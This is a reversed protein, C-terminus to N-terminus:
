LSGVLMADYQHFEIKVLLEASFWFRVHIHRSQARSIRLKNKTASCGL